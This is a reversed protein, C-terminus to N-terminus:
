RMLRGMISLPHIQGDIDFRATVEVYVKCSAEEM